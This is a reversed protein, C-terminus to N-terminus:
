LFPKFDVYKNLEALHRNRPEANCRLLSFWEDSGWPTDVGNFGGGNRNAWGDDKILYHLDGNNGAEISHRVWLELVSMTLNPFKKLAISVKLKCDDIIM